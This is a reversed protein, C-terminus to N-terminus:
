PKAHLEPCDFPGAYVIYSRQDRGIKVELRSALPSRDGESVVFATGNPGKVTFTVRENLEGNNSSSSGATFGQQEIPTGVLRAAAPSRRVAALGCVRADSRDMLGLAFVALLVVSVVLAVALLVAVIM